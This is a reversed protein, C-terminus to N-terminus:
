SVAEKGVSSLWVKMVRIGLFGIRCDRLVEPRYTETINDV